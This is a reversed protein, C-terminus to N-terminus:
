PPCYKNLKRQLSTRRIGLLRAAASKNGHTVGMAWQTYEWEARALTMPKPDTEKLEFPPHSLAMLIQDARCPKHFYAVAGRRIAECASSISPYATCIVLNKRSQIFGDLHELVWTGKFMLESVVTTIDQERLAAMGEDWSGAVVCAVGKAAFERYLRAAHGTDSDVILCHTTKASESM